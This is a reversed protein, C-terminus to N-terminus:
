ELRKAKLEGTATKVVLAKVAGGEGAEFGIESVRRSRPDDGRSQGPNRAPRSKPDRPLIVRLGGVSEM